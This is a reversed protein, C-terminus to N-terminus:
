LASWAALIAGAVLAADALNFAPWFPTAIFDVVGPRTLRDILNGGAGGILLGAAVPVSSDLHGATAVLAALAGAAGLWVVALARAPIAVLAGRANWRPRWGGHGRLVLSKSAQDLGVVAAATIWLVLM